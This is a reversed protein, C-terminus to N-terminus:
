PGAAADRPRPRSSTSPTARRDERRVRRRGGARDVRVQEPELGLAAALQDRVGFPAQTPVNVVLATAPRARRPHRQAGDARRRGAPQRVSGRRRRRRRRPRDRTRASTSRSRRTRATSPSCSRRATPRARGRPRRGGAAPRLRRHGGRGRRRGPRPDRRRGRRRHRRRLPRHRRGAAAPQVGAAAHHLGPRRPARPTDATYVRSSAPCPRPTAPTSAPSAPTPSRRGCSCSTASGTSPAPRRLLAGRGRLIRPDEVRRVPNGLISGSAPM